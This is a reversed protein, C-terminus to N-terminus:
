QEIVEADRGIFIGAALAYSSAIVDFHGRNERSLVQIVYVWDKRIDCQKWPPPPPPPQPTPVKTLEVASRGSVVIVSKSLALIMLRLPLRGEKRRLINTEDIYQGALRTAEDPSKSNAYVFVVQNQLYYNGTRADRVAQFAPDRRQRDAILEKIDIM